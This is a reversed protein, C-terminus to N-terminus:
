SSSGVFVVLVAAYAATGGIIDKKEMSHSLSLALGLIFVCVGVTVLQAVLSNSLKMILMPVILALGALIAVTFRGLFASGQQEEWDKKALCGEHGTYNPLPVHPIHLPQEIIGADVMVRRDRDAKTDLYFYDRLFQDNRDVQSIPDLMYQLDRIASIYDKMLEKIKEMADDAARQEQDTQTADLPTTKDELVVVAEALKLHGGQRKSESLKTHKFPSTASRVLEQVFGSGAPVNPEEDQHQTADPQARSVHHGPPM